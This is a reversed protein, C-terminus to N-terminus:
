DASQGLTDEPLALVDCKAEGAKHIIKELEDINRDVAALVDAPKDLRWDISRRKAQCAAVRILGEGPASATVSTTSKKPADDQASGTLPFATVLVAALFITRM